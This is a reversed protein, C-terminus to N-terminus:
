RKLGFSPLIRELFALGALRSNRSSLGKEGRRQLKIATTKRRNKKSKRAKLLILSFYKPNLVALLSARHTKVPSNWTM